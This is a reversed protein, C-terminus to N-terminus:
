RGNLASALDFANKGAASAAESLPQDPGSVAIGRAELAAIVADPTMGLAPAIQTAGSKFMLNALAFQPPGANMQAEPDSSPIMFFGSAIVSLVLAITMPARRFYNMFARWNKWLHLVFPVILVMSLWEHMPKFGMPGIHFFLAIGSILSVLFLGTILPTSYQNFFNKM